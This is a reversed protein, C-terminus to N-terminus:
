LIELFCWKFVKGIFSKKTLKSDYRLGEIKGKVCLLGDAPMLKTITMGSGFIHLFEGELKAIVEKETSSVVELVSTVEIKEQNFINITHVKNEVKNDM